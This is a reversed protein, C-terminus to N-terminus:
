LVLEAGFQLHGGGGGGSLNLGQSKCFNIFERFSLFAQPISLIGFSHRM